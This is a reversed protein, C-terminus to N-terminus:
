YGEDRWREYAEDPDPGDDETKEWLMDETDYDDDEVWYDWGDPCEWKFGLLDNVGEILNMEGAEPPDGPDGFSNYMRGEFGPYYEIEESWFEDPKTKDGLTVYLALIEDGEPAIQIDTVTKWKDSFAKNLSDEIMQKDAETVPSEDKTKYVTLDAWYFNQTVEYYGM